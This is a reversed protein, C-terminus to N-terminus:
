LAPRATGWQFPSDYRTFVGCLCDVHAPPKHLRTAACAGSLRCVIGAVLTFARADQSLGLCGSPWTPCGRGRPPPRGRVRRLGEPWTTLRNRGHGLCGLALTRATAWRALFGHPSSRRDTLRTPTPMVVTALPRIGLCHTSLDVYETTAPHSQPHRSICVVPTAAHPAPSVCALRQWGSSTGRVRLAHSLSTFRRPYTSHCVVVAFSWPLAPPIRTSTSAICAAWRIRRRISWQGRLGLTWPHPRTPSPCCADKDDDNCSRALFDDVLLRQGM